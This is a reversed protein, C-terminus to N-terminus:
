QYAGMLNNAATNMVRAQNGRHYLVSQIANECEVRLIEHAIRLDFYEVRLRESRAPQSAIRKGPACSSAQLTASSM